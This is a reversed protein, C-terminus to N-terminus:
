FPGKITLSQYNFGINRVLYKNLERLKMRLEELESLKEYSVPILHSILYTTQRYNEFFPIGEKIFEHITRDFAQIKFCQKRFVRENEFFNMHDIKDIYIYTVFNYFASSVNHLLKTTREYETSRFYYTMNMWYLFREVESRLTVLNELEKKLKLRISFSNEYSDGDLLETVWDIGNVFSTLALRKIFQNCFEHIMEYNDTSIYRTIEGIDKLINYREFYVKELDDFLDLM